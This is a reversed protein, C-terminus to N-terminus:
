RSAATYLRKATALLAEDSGAPGVLQISTGGVPIVVAPLGAISGALTLRINAHTISVLRGGLRASRTHRPAPAIPLTPGALAFGAVRATLWRSDAEVRKRAAFVERASLTAGHHLAEAVLRPFARPARAWDKAHVDHAEACVVQAHASAMEEFAPAPESLRGDTLGNLVREVTRRVGPSAVGVAEADMVLPLPEAARWGDLTAAATRSLVEIDAALLGVTDFSPALPLVGTNPIRGSTPKLAFLDCYAAPIRVSGGTDTGLGVAANGSAIAAATGGSSGGVARSPDKPNTLADTMTGFGAMDSMTTGAIHFGAARLRKVVDADSTARQGRRVPLGAVTRAGEVSIMDKVAVRLGAGAAM